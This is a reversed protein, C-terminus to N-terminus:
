NDQRSAVDNLEQRSATIQKQSTDAKNTKAKRYVAKDRHSIHRVEALHAELDQVPVKLELSDMSANAKVPASGISQTSAKVMGQGICMTLVHEFLKEFVSEPFLQRTRNITSHWPLSEDIDYGIFYLLDLRM